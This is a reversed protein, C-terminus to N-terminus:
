NQINIRHSALNSKGTNDFVQAEVTHDNGGNPLVTTDFSASYPATTDTHSFVPVAQGIRRVMFVIKQVGSSDSATATITITGSVAQGWYSPYTLSVQPTDGTDSSTQTSGSNSSSSSGSSSSQSGQSQTSSSKPAAQQTTSSSTAGPQSTSAGTTPKDQDKQGNAAPIGNLPGPGNTLEDKKKEVEQQSTSMNTQNKDKSQLQIARFAAAGVAVTVVVIGVIVAIHAIGQQHNEETKIKMEKAKEAIALTYEVPKMFYVKAQGLSGSVGLAGSSRTQQTDAM